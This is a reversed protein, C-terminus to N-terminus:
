IHDSTLVEKPLAPGRVGGCGVLASRPPHGDACVASGAAGHAAADADPPGQVRPVARQHDTAGGDELAISSRLGNFTMLNVVSGKGRTVARM